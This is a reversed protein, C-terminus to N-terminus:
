PFRMVTVGSVLPRRRGFVVQNESEAIIRDVNLAVLRYGLAQLRVRESPSFWRELQDLRRMGCGVYEDPHMQTRLDSGFEAMWTPPPLVDNHDVWLKSVGPRYPGRGDRDQVRYIRPM